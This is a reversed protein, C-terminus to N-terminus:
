RKQEKERKINGIAQQGTPDRWTRGARPPPTPAYPNNQDPTRDFYHVRVARALNDEM